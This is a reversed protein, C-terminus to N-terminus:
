NRNSHSLKIGQEIFRYDEIAKKVEKFFEPTEPKFFCNVAVRDRLASYWSMEPRKKEFLVLFKIGSNAEFFQALVEILWSLDEEYHKRIEEEHWVKVNKLSKFLESQKGIGLFSM